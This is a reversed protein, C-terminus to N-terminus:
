VGGVDKIMQMKVLELAGLISVITLGGGREYVTDLVANILQECRPDGTHLNVVKETQM